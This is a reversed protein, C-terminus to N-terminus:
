KCSHQITIFEMMAMVRYLETITFASPDGRMGKCCIRLNKEKRKCYVEVSVDFLGEIVMNNVHHIDQLIELLSTMSMKSIVKAESWSTGMIKEFITLCRQGNETFTLMVSFKKSNGLPVEVIM